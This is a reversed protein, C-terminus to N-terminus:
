YIMTSIEVVDGCPTAYTRISKAIYGRLQCRIAHELAQHKADFGGDDGTGPGTRFDFRCLRLRHTKGHRGIGKQWGEECGAVHIRRLNQSSRESAGM